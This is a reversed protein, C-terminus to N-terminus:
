KSDGKQKWDAYEEALRQADPGAFLAFYVGNQNQSSVEWSGPLMPHERVKYEM